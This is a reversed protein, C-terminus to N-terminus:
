REILVLVSRGTMEYTRGGLRDEQGIDKFNGQPEMWAATDGARYWAFGAAPAPLTVTLPQSGANYAIYISRAPDQVKSETADLRYALFHRSKDGLYGPDADRGDDRYWTLDKLGNGNGDQGRLYEAPRLAPHANRFTIARRAFRFQGEYTKLNSCDLHTRRDDINYPNPNGNQTRYMEDGGTFM